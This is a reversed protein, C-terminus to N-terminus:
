RKDESIQCEIFFEPDQELANLVKNVLAVEENNAFVVNKRDNLSRLTPKVFKAERKTMPGIKITKERGGTLIWSLLHQLFIIRFGAASRSPLKTKVHGLGAGPSIHLPPMLPETIGEGRVGLAGGEWGMRRMMREAIGSEMPTSMAEILRNKRTSGTLRSIEVCQEVEAHMTDVVQVGASQFAIGKKIPPRADKNLSRTGDGTTVSNVKRANSIITVEISQVSAVDKSESNCSNTELNNTKNKCQIKRSNDEKNTTSSIPLQSNECRKSSPTRPTESRRYIPTKYMLLDRLLTWKDVKGVDTSLTYDKKRRSLAIEKLIAAVDEHFLRHYEKDRALTTVLQLFRSDSATIHKFELSARQEDELFNLVETLSAKIFTESLSQILKRKAQFDKEAKICEQLSDSSTTSNSITSLKVDVTKCNNEIIAKSTKQLVVGATCNNSEFFEVNFEFRASAVSMAEYFASYLSKFGFGISTDKKYGSQILFFVYAAQHYPM